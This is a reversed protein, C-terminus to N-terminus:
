RPKVGEVFVLGEREALTRVSRFGNSQLLPTPDIRPGAPARAFLARIGSRPGSGIVMVRGGPRLARLAQGFTRNRDETSMAAILGETDDVVLVDFTGAEVPLSTAPATEVEILVGAAEAGKQARAASAADSVVVLARGSLGVKAAVAALRGGDGCGIQMFREGLRVGTMGVVLMHPDGRRRFSIMVM